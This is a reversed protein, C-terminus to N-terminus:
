YRRMGFPPATMLTRSPARWAFTCAKSRDPCGNDAAVCTSVPLPPDAAIKSEQMAEADESRFGMSGM